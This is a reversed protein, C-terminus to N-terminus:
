LSAQPPPAGGDAPPAPRAGAPARCRRFPLLRWLYRLSATAGNGAVISCPSSVLCCTRWCCAPTPGGLCRNAEQVPSERDTACQFERVQWFLKRAFAFDASIRRRVLHPGFGLFLFIGVCGNGFRNMLALSAVPLPVLYSFVYSISFIATLLVWITRLRMRGPGKDPEPLLQDPGNQCGSCHRLPQSSLSTLDFDM